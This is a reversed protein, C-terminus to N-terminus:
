GLDSFAFWCVDSGTQQLVKEKSYNIKSLQSRRMKDYFIATEKGDYFGDQLSKEGTASQEPRLIFSLASKIPCHFSPGLALFVVTNQM